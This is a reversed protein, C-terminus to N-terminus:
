RRKRLYYRLLIISIIGPFVFVGINVRRSNNLFSIFGIITIVIFLVLVVFIKKM